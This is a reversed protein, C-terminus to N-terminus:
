PRASTTTRRPSSSTPARRPRGACRTAICAASTRAAPTVPDAPDYAWTNCINGALMAGGASATERALRLAQRNLAEVDGERGIMRLKEEHGYYTFAVMVDAGAALFERHLEAVADPRDLVVEPVYPGSKLYGRRELEFLYGEAGLVVGDDDLRELLGPMRALNALVAAAGAGPLLDYEGERAFREVGRAVAAEDLEVGLGPGAPVTWWGVARARVARQAIVDDTYWRLLSQSPLDLSPAAAAIHLACATAIGLDGGYFWFRAGARTCDVIFRRTGTVGGCAAVNLVFADAAGLSTAHDLATEHTSFPIPSVRRLAAMEGLTGVPEELNAIQLPWGQLARRATEPRWGMNADLRLIRDPGIAARVERVMHLEERLPHVAVKGEFSPSGHAEIMAACYAAVAAPTSEGGAAPGAIRHAFYETFEVAQRVAGGFLDHLPLGQTRAEIDWLAMEVGALARAPDSPAARQATRM